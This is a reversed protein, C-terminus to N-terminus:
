IKKTSNKTNKCTKIQFEYPKQTLAFMRKSKYLVLNNPTQAM